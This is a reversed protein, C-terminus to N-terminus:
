NVIKWTVGVRNLDYLRLRQGRANLTYATIGNPALYEIKDVRDNARSPVVVYLFYDQLNTLVVNQASLRPSTESIQRLYDPSSHAAIYEQSLYSLWGEYNRSRIIQNLEKIMNQIDHTTIAIVEPSISDPDFPIGEAAPEPPPPDPAIALEPAEKQPIEALAPEVVPEPGPKTQCSVLLMFLLLARYIRKMVKITGM